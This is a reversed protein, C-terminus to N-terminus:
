LLLGGLVFPAAALWALACVVGTSWLAPKERYALWLHSWAALTSISVGLASLVHDSSSWTSRDLTIFFAGWLAPVLAGLFVAWRLLHGPEYKDPYATPIGGVARRYASKLGWAFPRVIDPIVQSWTGRSAAWSVYAAKGYSLAVLLWSIGWLVYASDCFAGLWLAFSDDM